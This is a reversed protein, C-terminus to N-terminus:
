HYNNIINGEPYMNQNINNGMYSNNGMSFKSKKNNSEYENNINQKQFLVNNNVINNMFPIIRYKNKQVIHNLNFNNNGLVNNNNFNYNRKYKDDFNSNYLKNNYYNHCLYEINGNINVSNLFSENNFNMNSLPYNKNIDKILNNKGYYKNTDNIISNFETKDDYIDNHNNQTFKNSNYNQSTEISEDKPSDKNCEMSKSDNPSSPNSSRNKSKHESNNLPSNLLNFEESIKSKKEENDSKISEVENLMFSPLINNLDKRSLDNEPSSM